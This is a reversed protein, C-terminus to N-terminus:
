PQLIVIKKTNKCFFFNECFLITISLLIILQLVVFRVFVCSNFFFLSTFSNSHLYFPPFYAPLFYPFGLNKM